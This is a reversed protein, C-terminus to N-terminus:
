EAPIKTSLLRFLTAQHRLRYRSAILLSTLCDTIGSDLRCIVPHEARKLYRLM